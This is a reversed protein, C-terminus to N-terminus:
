IYVKKDDPVRVLTLKVGAGLYRCVTRVSYFYLNEECCDEGFLGTRNPFGHMAMDDSIKCLM